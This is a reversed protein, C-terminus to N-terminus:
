DETKMGLLAARARSTEHFNVEANVFVHPQARLSFGAVCEAITIRGDRDLVRFVNEQYSRDGNKFSMMFIDGKAPNFPGTM